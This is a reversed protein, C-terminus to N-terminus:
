KEFVYGSLGNVEHTKMLIQPYPLIDIVLDQTEVLMDPYVKMEQPMRKETGGRQIVRKSEVSYNKSFCRLVDSVGKLKQLMEPNVQIKGKSLVM